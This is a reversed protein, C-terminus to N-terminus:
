GYLKNIAYITHEILEGALMTIPNNTKTYIDAAMGGIYLATLAARVPPLGQALFGACLGALVDGTGATALASNGTPNIYVHGEPDGVISPAGKLLLVCQWKSAYHRVISIRDILSVDKDTLRKFEGLHPTLVWRKQAYKPIMDTFEALANLGDADVVTPLETQSLLTRIFSQTAPRRGMGCGILLSTAKEIAPRLIDQVSQMEIGGATTPLALTMVETMKQALIPQVRDQTACIVAGAGSRAAATCALTAAGTLGESGAVVFAMGVGYKHADYQRTPLWSRIAEATVVLTCNEMGSVRALIHDPIGIEAVETRGAFRFGEGVLLGTKLAGMTITLDARVCQGLVIGTDTHLGTPIDMAAVYARSDNIWQVFDNYPSRLEHKVGTGLLADVILDFRNSNELAQISPTHHLFLRGTEDHSVLQALLDYHNAADKSMEDAKAVSFVHVEAGRQYMVRAAVFGDGGNNGKGCLCAVVSGAVPKWHKEISDVAARGATEMLTFGPIGIEEITLRDAERMAKASLAPLLTNPM